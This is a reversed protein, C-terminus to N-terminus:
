ICLLYKQRMLCPWLCDSMLAKCPTDLFVQIRLHVWISFVLPRISKQKGCNQCNRMSKPILWTVSYIPCCHSCLPHQYNNLNITSHERWAGSCRWTKSLILNSIGLPSLDLFVISHLGEQIASITTTETICGNFREKKSIAHFLPLNWM